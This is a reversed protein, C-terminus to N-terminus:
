HQHALARFRVRDALQGDIRIVFSYDGPTPVELHYFNQAWLMGLDSGRPLGPPRGLEFPQSVRHEGLVSIGDENELDIELMFRENARTWPVRLRIGLALSHVTAPFGHVWLTDWGGGLLHIRDDSVQIADAVIAFDVSPSLVPSHEM